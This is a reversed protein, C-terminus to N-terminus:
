NQTLHCASIRGLVRPLSSCYLDLSKPKNRLPFSSFSNLERVQEQTIIKSYGTTSITMGRSAPLNKSCAYQWQVKYPLFMVVGASCYTRTYYKVPVM